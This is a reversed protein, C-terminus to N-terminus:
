AGARRAQRAEHQPHWVDLARRAQGGARLGDGEPTPMHAYADGDHLPVRADSESQESLSLALSVGM